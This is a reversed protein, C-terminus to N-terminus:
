VVSQGTSAAIEQRATTPATAPAAASAKHGDEVEGPLVGEEKIKKVKDELTAIAHASRWAPITGDFLVDIEELSKRVTEPYTFYIHVVMVLCFTGFIMYTQWQINTFAPPVFFALALNFSHLGFLTLWDFDRCVLM